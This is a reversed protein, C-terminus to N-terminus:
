FRNQYLNRLNHSFSWVINVIQMREKSNMPVTTATKLSFNLSCRIVTMTFFHCNKFLFPVYFILKATLARNQHGNNQDDYKPFRLKWLPNPRVTSNETTQHKCSSDLNTPLFLVQKKSGDYERLWFWIRTTENEFINYKNRSISLLFLTYIRTEWPNKTLKM